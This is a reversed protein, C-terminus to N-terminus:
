LVVAYRKAYAAQMIINAIKNRIDRKVNGERLKNKARNKRRLDAFKGDNREQIRKRRWAYGLTIKRVDTELLYATSDILMTVNNENVDVPLYGRPEYPRVEKKFIFYFYVARRKHDLKFRADTSMAWGGNVHRWFQKHPRLEIAVRRGSKTSVKVTTYGELRWMTEDLWVTINRVVPKDTRAEGRRKKALFSKVRASADQCATYIYHSPLDPHERRM